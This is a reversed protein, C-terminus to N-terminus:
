DPVWFGEPCWRRVFAEGSPTFPRRWGFSEIPQGVQEAAVDLLRKALGRQQGSGHTWIIEVTWSTMPAVGTAPRREADWDDWSWWAWRARARLVALGVAHGRERVIFARTEPDPDAATYAPSHFPTDRMARVAVQEALAREAAPSGHGVMLVEAGDWRAVIQEGPLRPLPIADLQAAAADSV